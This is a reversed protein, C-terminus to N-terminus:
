NKLECLWKKINNKVLNDSISKINLYEKRFTKAEIPLKSYDWAGDSSYIIGDTLIAIAIAVYGYYLCVIAPQGMTRKVSWSYGVELNAEIKGKLFQAHKNEQIEETWFDKDLDTSEHYFVYVEGEKNLNFVTYNNENLVLFTPNLYIKKDDTIEKSTIDIEHSINEKKLFESFLEVSYKIIEDCNPKKKTTPFIEFNM